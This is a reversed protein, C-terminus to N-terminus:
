GYTQIGYWETSIEMWPNSFDIPSILPVETEKNSQIQPIQPPKSKQTPLVMPLFNMGGSGSTSNMIVNAVRPSASIQKKESSSPRTIMAMGGMGGMSGGGLGYDTGTRKKYIEEKLYRDFDSIVKSFEESTHKQRETVSFLKTIARSFDKWLRGANDNLDKLLPRFLMASTTRIIEEGPALMARVSDVMGSGIGGVTGRLREFTGGEAYGQVSGGNSFKQIATPNFNYITGGKSRANEAAERAELKQIQEEVLMGFIPNGPYRTVTEIGADLKEQKTLPAGKAKEKEDITRQVADGGLKSLKAASAITAIVAATALFAPSTLVAGILSITGWLSAITTALQIGLLTAAIEKWYKGVFEFIRDLKQRNEEKQLWAFAKNLVIGTLILGFFEKIKDFVSKIPASVKNVVGGVAGGIKKLGEVSKERAAFKKKSEEKKTKELTDKEEAIRMAFDIALQNQIEVLIRNTEALSQEVPSIEPKLNQEVNSGRYISGYGMGAPVKITKSSSVADATGRFVSSSVTTKGLKPKATLSPARFAQSSFAM